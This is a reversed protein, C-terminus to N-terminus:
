AALKGFLAVRDNGEQNIELFAQGLDLDGHSPSLFFVVLSFRNPAPDGVAFGLPRDFAPLLLITQTM